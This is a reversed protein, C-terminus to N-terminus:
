AASQHSQLDTHHRQRRSQEGRDEVGNDDAHDADIQHQIAAAEEFPRRAIRRHRVPAADGEENLAEVTHHAAVDAALAGALILPVKLLMVNRFVTLTNDEAGAPTLTLLALASAPLIWTSAM